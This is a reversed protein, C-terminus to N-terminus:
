GAKSNFNNSFLHWVELLQKEAEDLHKPNVLEFSLGNLLGKGASYCLM